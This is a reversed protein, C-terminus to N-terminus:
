VIFLLNTHDPYVEIVCQLGVWLVALFFWLVSVTVLCWFSLQLLAVLERKGLLNITFSSHCLASFLLVRVLCLAGM